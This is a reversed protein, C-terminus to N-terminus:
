CSMQPVGSSYGLTLKWMSLVFIYKKLKSFILKGHDVIINGHSNNFYNLIYGTIIM